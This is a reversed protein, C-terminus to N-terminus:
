KVSHTYRKTEKLTTIIKEKNEKTLYNDKEGMLILKISENLKEQLKKQTERNAQYSKNYEETIKNHNDRSKKLFKEALIRNKDKKVRNLKIQKKAYQIDHPSFKPQETSINDRMAIVKHRIKGLLNKTNQKTDIQNLAYTIEQLLKDSNQITQKYRALQAEKNTVEAILEQYATFLRRNQLEEKSINSSLSNIREEYNCTLANYLGNYADNSLCERKHCGSFLLLSTILTSILTLRVTLRKM